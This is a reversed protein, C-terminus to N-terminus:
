PKGVAAGGDEEDESLTMLESIADDDDELGMKAVKEVEGDEAEDEKEKALFPVDDM